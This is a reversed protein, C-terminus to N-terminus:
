TMITIFWKPITLVMRRSPTGLAVEAVLISSSTLLVTHKCSVVRQQLTFCELLKGNVFSPLCNFSKSQAESTQRIVMMSLGPWFALLAAYVAAFPRM